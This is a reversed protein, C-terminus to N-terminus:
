CFAALAEPTVLKSNTLATLVHDRWAGCVFLYDRAYGEPVFGLARLTRASRENTPLHNASIRHLRKTEFAFAIAAELAERMLGKGVQAEDLGFGLNCAQLPGRVVETFGVHGLLEGDGGDRARLVFRFALGAAWDRESRVAAERAWDSLAPGEPVPPGVASFRARNRQRYRALADALSGALPVLRLRATTLM